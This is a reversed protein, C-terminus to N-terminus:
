STVDLIVKLKELVLSNRITMMVIGNFDKSHVPNKKTRQSYFTVNPFGIDSFM